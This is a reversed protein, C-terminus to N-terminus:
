VFLEEPEFLTQVLGQEYCYQIMLAIARRNPGLGYQTPFVGMEKLKKVELGMHDTERGLNLEDEYLRRASQWATMLRAPLDAHTKM